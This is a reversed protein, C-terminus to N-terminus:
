LAPITIKSFMFPLFLLRSLCAKWPMPCVLGQWMYPVEFPSLKFWSPMSKGWWLSAILFSALLHPVWPEIGMIWVQVVSVLHGFSESQKHVEFVCPKSLVCFLCFLAPFHACTSQNHCEGFCARALSSCMVAVWFKSLLAHAIHHCSVVVAIHVWGRKDFVFPMYFRHMPQYVVVINNTNCYRIRNGLMAITTQM